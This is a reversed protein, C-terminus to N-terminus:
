RAATSVFEFSTGSFVMVNILMNLTVAGTALSFASDPGPLEILINTGAHLVIQNGEIQKVRGQILRPPGMIPVVFVGGANVTWLKRAKARIVGQVPVDFPGDYKGGAPELHLEYQTGRPMFRILSEGAPTVKGEATFNTAVPM